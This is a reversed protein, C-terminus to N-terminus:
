PKYACDACVLARKDGLFNQQCRMCRCLYDGGAWGGRAPSGDEKVRGLPEPKPQHRGFRQWLSKVDPEMEQSVTQKIRRILSIGKM